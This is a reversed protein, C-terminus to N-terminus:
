RRAKKSTAATDPAAKTSSGERLLLQLLSPKQAVTIVACARRVYDPSDLQRLMADALDARSTYSGNLYDPATRYDTVQETDFLGSPRMITWDAESARVLKEMRAMDAYVTRGFYSVIPGAIKDVFFGGHPGLTPDTLSASVCVVRRIGRRSMAALINRMGDSYVSVPDRSYPVGLVSVVADSDSLAADVATADYVDAGVVRLAAHALPFEDPRRTVATVDYGSALAQATLVRGTPGNAGFIAIRM